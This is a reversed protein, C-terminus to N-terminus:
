RNSTRSLGLYSGIVIAAPPLGAALMEGWGGEVMDQRIGETWVEDVVVGDLCGGFGCNFWKPSASQVVGPPPCTIPEAHEPNRKIGAGFM